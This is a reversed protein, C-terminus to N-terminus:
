QAIIFNCRRKKSPLVRPCCYVCRLSRSFLSRQDRDNVVTTQKVAAEGCNCEITTLAGYADPAHLQINLTRQDSAEFEIETASVLQFDGARAVGGGGVADSGHADSDATGICWAHCSVVRGKLHGQGRPPGFCTVGRSNISVHSSEVTWSDVEQNSLKRMLRGNGDIFLTAAIGSVVIFSESFTSISQSVPVFRSWSPSWSGSAGEYWMSLTSVCHTPEDNDNQSGTTNHLLDSCSVAAKTNANENGGAGHGIGTDRAQAMATLKKTALKPWISELNDFGAALVDSDVNNATSCAGHCRQRLAFTAACVQCEANRRLSRKADHAIPEATCKGREDPSTDYPTDCLPDAHNLVVLSDKLAGGTGCLKLQVIQTRRGYTACVSLSFFLM